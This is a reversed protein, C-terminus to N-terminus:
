LKKGPPRLLHAATDTGVCTTKVGPKEWWSLRQNCTSSYVNYLIFQVQKIIGDFGKWCFSSLVYQASVNM